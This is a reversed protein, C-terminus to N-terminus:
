LQPEEIASFVWLTEQQDERYEKLKSIHLRLWSGDLKQYILEIVETEELKKKLKSYNCLEEFCTYYEPKVIRKAYILIAKAFQGEAEDLCEEFYSPIYIHRISDSSLNVFYVGKFGSALFEFFVEADRKKTIMKELEADLTRMKRVNGQSQYYARKDDQMKIEAEKVMEDVNNHDKQYAIGASIEAKEAALRQRVERLREEYDGWPKKVCLVVFEDGGIRYVKDQAFVISLSEAVAKLMEDGAQHGMHNNIEHLGNADIYVCAALSNKKDRAEDLAASFSNRNLVGTLADHNAIQKLQENIDSTEKMNRVIWFVILGTLFVVVLMCVILVPGRTVASIVAANTTAVLEDERLGVLLVWGTSPIPEYIVYCLDNNWYYTGVGSEGDLGKQELELISKTEGDPNEKYLERANYQSTVWDIHNQDSVAIDTGEADIIYCEGTHSFRIGSIMECFLYGDKEVSLAGIIESNAMVPASFCVVYEDEENYYPGYVATEGALAARIDQRNRIDLERGDSAVTGERTAYVMRLNEKETYVEPFQIADASNGSVEMASALFSAEQCNRDLEKEVAEAGQKAMSEVFQITYDKIQDQSIHLISVCAIVLIVIMTLLFLLGVRIGLFVVQKKNSIEM